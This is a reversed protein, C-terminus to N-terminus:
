TTEKTGGVIQMPHKIVEPTKGYALYATFTLKGGDADHFITEITEFEKTTSPPLFKRHIQEIKVVNHISAATTTM